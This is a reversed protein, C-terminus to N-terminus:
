SKLEPDHVMMFGKTATPLFRGSVVMGGESM